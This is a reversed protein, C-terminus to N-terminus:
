MLRSRTAHQSYQGRQGYRLRRQSISNETIHKVFGQFPVLRDLQGGKYAAKVQELVLSMSWGDYVAHHQAWVFFRKSSKDDEVLAFQVLPTGLGMQTQKNEKIYSELDRGTKWEPLDAIVVQVLGQGRLDFIRTRLIPTMWIVKEWAKRFQGINIGEELELVNRSVYDGPRKVTMALLGEQLPTCPFIDEICNESTGCQHAAQMRATKASISPKLLSFPLIVQEGHGELITVRAMDCLRPT